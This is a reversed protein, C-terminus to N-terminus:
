AVALAGGDAGTLVLSGTDVLLVLSSMVSASQSRIMPSHDVEATTRMTERGSFVRFMHKGNFFVVPAVVADRDLEWPAFGPLPRVLDPV